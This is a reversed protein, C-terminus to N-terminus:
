TEPEYVSVMARALERGSADVITCSFQGMGNSGTLECRVQVALTAGPTFWPETAVYRRTGLLYGVQPVQGHRRARAGAWAAITQAMYEIGLWSPTGQPRSFLSTVPVDVEALAQADDAQLVRSLLSM